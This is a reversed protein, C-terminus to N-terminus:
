SQPCGCKSMGWPNCEAGARLVSLPMYATVDLMLYYQNPREVKMPYKVQSGMQLSLTTTAAHASIM